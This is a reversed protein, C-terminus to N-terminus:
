KYRTSYKDMLQLSLPIFWDLQDDQEYMQAFHSFPQLLIIVNTEISNKEGRKSTKSQMELSLCPKM